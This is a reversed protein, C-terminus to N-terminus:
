KKDLCTHEIKPPLSKIWKVINKNGYRTARLLIHGTYVDFKSYLLKAADLNGYECANSFADNTSYHDSFCCVHEELIYRLVNMSSRKIAIVRCKYLSYTVFKNVEDCCVALDEQFWRVFQRYVGFLEAMTQRHMNTIDYQKVRHLFWKVMSVNDQEAAVLHIKHFMEQCGIYVKNLGYVANMNVLMKIKQDFNMEDSDVISDIRSMYTANARKEVLRLACADYCTTFEFLLSYVLADFM